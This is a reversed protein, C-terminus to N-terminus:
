GQDALTVDITQPDVIAAAGTGLYMEVFGLDADRQVYIASADLAAANIARDFSLRIAEAEGVIEAAVLVLAVPPPPPPPPPPPAASIKGKVRVRKRRGTLVPFSVM